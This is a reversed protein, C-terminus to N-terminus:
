IVSAMKLSDPLSAVSERGAALSYGCFAIGVMFYETRWAHRKLITSHCIKRMHEKSPRVGLRPLATAIPRTAPPGHPRDDGSDDTPRSPAIRDLKPWPDPERVRLIQVDIASVLHDIRSVVGGARGAFGPGVFGDQRHGVVVVSSRRAGLGCGTPDATVLGPESNQAANDQPRRPDSLRGRDPPQPDGSIRATPQDGATAACSSRSM